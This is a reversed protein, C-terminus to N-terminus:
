EWDQRENAMWQDINSSRESEPHIGCMERVARLRRGVSTSVENAQHVPTLMAVPKGARELVVTESKLRVTDLYAGLHRRFEMATVTQMM